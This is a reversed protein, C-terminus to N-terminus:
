MLSVDRRAPPGGHTRSFANNTAISIAALSSIATQYASTCDSSALDREIGRACAYTPARPLRAKDRHFSIARERSERSGRTDRACCCRRYGLILRFRNWSDELDVLRVLSRAFSRVLSRAELRPERGRTERKSPRILPARETKWKSLFEIAFASRSPSARARLLELGRPQM